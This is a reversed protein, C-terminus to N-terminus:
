KGGKRSECLIMLCGILVSACLIITSLVFELKFDEFFLVLSMWVSFLSWM